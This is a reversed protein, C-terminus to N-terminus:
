FLEITGRGDVGQMYPTPSIAVFLPVFRLAPIIDQNRLGTLIHHLYMFQKRLEEAITM